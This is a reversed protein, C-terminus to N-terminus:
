LADVLQPILGVTLNGVQFGLAAGLIFPTVGGACPLAQHSHAVSPPLTAALIPVFRAGRPYLSMKKRPFEIALRFAPPLIAAKACHEINRGNPFRYTPGQAEFLPLFDGCELETIVVSM